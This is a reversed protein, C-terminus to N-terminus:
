HRSGGSPNRSVSIVSTGGSYVSTSLSIVSTGGGLSGGAVHQLENPTLLRLTETTLSLKKISKKM